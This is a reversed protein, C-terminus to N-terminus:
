RTDKQKELPLKEMVQEYLTEANHNGGMAKYPTYLVQLQEREENTAFGKKLYIECLGCIRDHLLGMLADQVLEVKKMQKKVCKYIPIFLALVTTIGGAIEVLLRFSILGM